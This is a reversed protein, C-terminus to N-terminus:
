KKKRERQENEENKNNEDGGEKEMSTVMRQVTDRIHMLGECTNWQWESIVFRVCM